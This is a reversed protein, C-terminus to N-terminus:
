SGQPLQRILMPPTHKDFGLPRVVADFNQGFKCIPFNKSMLNIRRLEEAYTIVIKERHSLVYGSEIIRNFEACFFLSLCIGSSISNQGKCFKLFCESTVLYGIMDLIVHDLLSFYPNILIQIKHLSTDRALAVYSSQLLLYFVKKLGITLQLLWSLSKYNLKM